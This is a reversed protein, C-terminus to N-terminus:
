SRITEHDYKRERSGHTSVGYCALVFAIAAAVSRDTALSMDGLRNHVSRYFERRRHAPLLEAGREIQQEQADTLIM